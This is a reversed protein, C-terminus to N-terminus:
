DLEDYKAGLLDILTEYRKLQKELLQNKKYEEKYSQYWDVRMKNIIDKADDNNDESSVDSSVDSSVEETPFDDLTVDVLNDDIIQTDTQDYEPLKLEEVQINNTFDNLSNERNTKYEVIQKIRELAEKNPSYTGRLWRRVNGANKNLLKALEEITLECTDLLKQWDINYTEKGSKTEVKPIDVYKKNLPNKFYDHLSHVHSKNLKHGDQYSKTLLRSITSNDLGMEEAMDSIIVNFEKKLNNLDEPEMHNYWELATTEAVEMEIKSSKYDIEVLHIFKDLLDGELARINKEVEKYIRDSLGLKSAVYHLSLRSKIRKNKYKM